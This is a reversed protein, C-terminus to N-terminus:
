HRHPIRRTGFRAVIVSRMGGRTTFSGELEAWVPKTAKVIDGLIRNVANEYFIGMNRYGLLYYKFSKLEICLKAPEYILALVGFDPLKTKPCVSTFEPHEIHIEYGQHQNPWTEIPPLPADAGSLALDPQYGYVLKKRM